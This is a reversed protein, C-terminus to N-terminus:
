CVEEPDCDVQVALEAVRAKKQQQYEESVEYARIQLKKRARDRSREDRLAWVQEQTWPQGMDPHPQMPWTLRPFQWVMGHQVRM